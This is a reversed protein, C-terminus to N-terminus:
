MTEDLLKGCDAMTDSIGKVVVKLDREMKEHVKLPTVLYLRIKLQSINVEYEFNLKTLKNKSEKITLGLKTVKEAPLDEECVKEDRFESCTKAIAEELQQQQQRAEDRYKILQDLEKNLSARDEKMQIGLLLTHQEREKMENTFSQHFEHLVQTPLSVIDM